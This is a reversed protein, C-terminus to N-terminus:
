SNKLISKQKTKQMQMYIKIVASHLNGQNEKRWPKRNDM